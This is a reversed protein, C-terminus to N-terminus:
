LSRAVEQVEFVELQDGEQIENFNKLSLGCEFGAKVEKADDKFRKLSDLEGTWVVINNRLLRVSAGRKVQGELVYCGAIAGVKSVMIVQRIEALAVVGLFKERGRRRGGRTGTTDDIGRADDDAGGRRVAVGGEGAETERRLGLQLQRQAYRKERSCLKKWVRM